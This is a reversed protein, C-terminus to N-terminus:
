KSFLRSINFGTDVSKKKVVENIVKREERIFDSSQKLIEDVLNLFRKTDDDM